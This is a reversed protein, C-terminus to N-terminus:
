CPATVGATVGADGAPVALSSLSDLTATVPKRRPVVPRNIIILPMSEAKSLMYHMHHNLAYCQENDEAAITRIVHTEAVHYTVSAFLPRRDGSAGPLKELKRLVRAM